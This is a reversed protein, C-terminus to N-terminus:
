GGGKSRQIAAAIQQQKQRLREMMPQMLQQMEGMTNQMVLPMKNLLTQGGPTQYMAILSDIETQTFSKQYVRVYIAELKNWDLMEKLLAKVKQAPM